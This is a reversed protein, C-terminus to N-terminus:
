IIVPFLATIVLQNYFIDQITSGNGTLYCDFSYIKEASSALTSQVDFLQQVDSPWELNFQTTLMILQLYNTFIKLYISELSKPTYASKLSSRVLVVSIFVFLIVFGILILINKELPPCQACQLSSLKTYGIECAFCKNGTYGLYCSGTFDNASLSGLCSEAINCPYLIVSNNSSRWYGPLPYIKSGGPCDAGNPCKFCTDGPSIIYTGPSCEICTSKGYIEGIVCDRLDITFNLYQSYTVNDHVKAQLSTDISTTYLSMNASTGPTGSILYNKLSFIGTKAIFLLTGALSYDNSNILMMGLSSNDLNM